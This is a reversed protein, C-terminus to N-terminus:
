DMEKNTKGNTQRDKWIGIGGDMHSGRYNNTYRNTRKDLQGEIGREIYSGKKRETGINRQEEIWWKDRQWGTLKKTRRDTKL